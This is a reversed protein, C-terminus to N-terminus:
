LMAHLESSPLPSLSIAREPSSSTRPPLIAEERADKGSGAQATSRHVRTGLKCVIGFRFAVPAGSCVSGLTLARGRVSGEESCAEKRSPEVAGLAALQEAAHRARCRSACSARLAPFDRERASRPRPLDVGKSPSAGCLVVVNSSEILCGPHCSPFLSPLPKLLVLIPGPSLPVLSLTLPVLLPLSSESRESRTASSPTARSSMRARTPRATRPASTSRSARSSPSSPSSAASQPPPLPRRPDAVAESLGCFGLLSTGTALLGPIYFPFDVQRYVLSSCLLFGPTLSSPSSLDPLRPRVCLHRRRRGHRHVCGLLPRAELALPRQHGPLRSRGPQLNPFTLRPSSPSPEEVARAPQGLEM